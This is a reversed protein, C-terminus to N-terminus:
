LAPPAGFRRAMEKPFSSPFRGYQPNVWLKGALKDASGAKEVCPKRPTAHWNHYATEFPIKWFCGFVDFVEAVKEREYLYPTHTSFNWVSKGHHHLRMLVQGLGRRWSGESVMTEGLRSTMNTLHRATSLEAVGQDTLMFIDDNMWLVRGACQTGIWLATEYDPAHIFEGPWWDPRKDALLVHPWDRERWHKLVSRHSFWLEDWEAASSLWPWVVAGKGFDPIAPTKTLRKVADPLLGARRFALLNGLKEKSYIHFAWSPRREGPLCNWETGIDEVPMAHIRHAEHIWWNWHHQEMIGTHYPKEIVSLMAAAAARDCAWVGANRYIWQGPQRGFREACWKVWSAPRIWPGHNKRDIEPRIYFGPKGFFPRPAQPHMVIDADMYLMWESPGALFARLMDVECFKPDPYSPDWKSTIILPLGHRRCWADLTPACEHMWPPNGFRLTHVEISQWPVDQPVPLVFPGVPAKERKGGRCMLCGGLRLREVPLMSEAEHLWYAARRRPINVAPPSDWVIGYTAPDFPDKM